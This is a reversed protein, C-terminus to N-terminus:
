AAWRGALGFMDDYWALDRTQIDDGATPAPTQYAARLAAAAAVHAPDAITLGHAWRRDHVGVLHRGEFVRVTDLDAAVDVMRGISHPDASYDNGAVTVYYDRGLRTRNRYGLGFVAPPLPLMKERDWALLSAPASGTTRVVRDNAVVLWDALQANFDAPCSFTRGPMFSTELWGNRREVGGKSEPDRPKLLKIQCALTGAFLRAQETLRGRGIGAENDWILRRPVGGLQQLLRWIGSLLDETRRSPIMLAMLSRSFMSVMTLVPLLRATGDELPIKYPPFWLDCQAADGAEWVLRDVPDVRAYDPRLRAVNERWWSESGTWGLREALVSAPLSPTAELLVRVRPEFVDFSTVGREREYVRPRDSALAARVTGRALGLDRAIQRQPVGAAGMQRILSWDKVSIM